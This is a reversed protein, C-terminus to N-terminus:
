IHTKLDLNGFNRAGQDLEKSLVIVSVLIGPFLSASSRSSSGSPIILAYQLSTFM